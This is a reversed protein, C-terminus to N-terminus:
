FQGTKDAPLELTLCYDRYGLSRWFSLASTNHCLAGVTLRRNKPWVERRLLTVAARGIGQRRSDRRVFLQRLYLADEDPAFLAYAVPQTTSFIVAQYNGSLWETMRGKLEEVTLQSRHGEDRILQHNWEALFGVDSLSAYRWSLNM